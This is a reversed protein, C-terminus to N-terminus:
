RAPSPLHSSNLGREHFEDFIVLEVGELTPDDVLRRTLIGETLIELRTLSSTRKEFRIQYGVSEGVKEGLQLALRSAIQRAAIRRPELMLIRGKYSKLLHLPLITSKGAGPPATLLLIGCARLRDVIQGASDKLEGGSLEGAM